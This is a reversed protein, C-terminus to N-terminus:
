SRVKGAEELIADLLLDAMLRKAPASRRNMRKAQDLKM